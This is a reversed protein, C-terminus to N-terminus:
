IYSGALPPAPYLLLLSLTHGLVHDLHQVDCLAKRADDGVVVNRELQFLPLNVGKQPLVARSLGGQHAHEEPQILRLLTLDALVSFLHLDVVGVIGVGQADAHDVLVELQHLAEAYQVVDDQPHLGGLASKQLLVLGPLLNDGQRFFVAQGHVRVGENLIDRHAHLLAGLNQFHQIPVVFDQDKVLGGGHEGGLLNLFQHVNHFIQGGLPLADQEDGVLQGLDHLHGVTATHQALALVDARHVDLVGGRLGQGGHHHAPVHVEHHLLLGRLGAVHHQVDLAHRHGGLAVLVVRHVVHGHLDAPSLDDADGADVAVALRFKDVAEGAQLRQLLPGDAEAPLVDGMGGDPLAGLQAHAVDGLVPVLM